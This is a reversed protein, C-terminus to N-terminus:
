WLNVKKDGDEGGRMSIGQFMSGSNSVFSANVSPITNDNFGSSSQFM